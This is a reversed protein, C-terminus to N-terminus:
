VPQGYFTRSCKHKTKARWNFSGSMYVTMGSSPFSAYKVSMLWTLTKTFCTITYPQTDNQVDTYAKTEWTCMRRKSKHISTVWYIYTGRLSWLNIYYCTNQKYMYQKSIYKHSLDYLNLWRSQHVKMIIWAQVWKQPVPDSLSLEQRHSWPQAMPIESYQPRLMLNTRKSKSTKIQKFHWM